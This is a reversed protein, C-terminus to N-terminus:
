ALAAEVRALTGTPNGGGIPREFSWLEATRRDDVAEGEPGKSRTRLEALFRVRVRATDGDVEVQDLDARPAHLFESQESRGQAERATMAAEFSDFVPPTLLPRLAERDGASFARVIREYAIRAGDLFKAADFEADRAKLAPLGPVAADPSSPEVRRPEPKRGGQGATEVAEEPQRGVRRGLVNYLQFLVVAAIVAVIVIQVVEPVRGEL